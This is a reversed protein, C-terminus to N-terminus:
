IMLASLVRSILEGQRHCGTKHFINKLHSRLTAETKHMAKALTKIDDGHLLAHCLRAEAATLDFYAAITKETPFQRENADIISLLLGGALLGEDLVPRMLLLLPAQQPRPLVLTNDFYNREGISAAIVRLASQLYQKQLEDAKFVLRNRVISLLASGDLLNQAKQNAYLVTAEKNLILAAQPLAEIVSSFSQIIQKNRGVQLSLQVAQRIYPVLDNLVALEKEQYAGQAVTRQLTLLIIQQEDSHVLLWASDLMNQDSEWRQYEKEQQLTPLLPLANRFLGPKQTVAYNSVVDHSIMNNDLYWDIFEISLGAHWLHDIRMPSKNLTVLQGACANIYQCLLSLFPEFGNKDTLASYLSQILLAQTPKQNM